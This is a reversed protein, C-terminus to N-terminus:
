DSPETKISKTPTPLRPITEEPHAQSKTAQSKTAQAEESLGADEATRKRAEKYWITFSFRKSYCPLVEHIVTDSWFIVLMGLDPRVDFKDAGKHIRLCGGDQEALDANLFFTCTLQVSGDQRSDIHRKYLAGEGDYCSAMIKSKSIRNMEVARSSFISVALKNLSKVIKFLFPSDESVVSNSSDFWMVSDGRIQNSKEDFLTDNQLKGPTFMGPKDHQERIEQYTCRAENAAVFNKVVCFGNTRLQGIIRLLFGIQSKVLQQDIIHGEPIQNVTEVVVPKVCTQLHRIWDQKLLNLGFYFVDNCRPCMIVPSSTLDESASYVPMTAIEISTSM